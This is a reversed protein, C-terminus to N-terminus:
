VDIRKVAILDGLRAAVQEIIPWQQLKCVACYDATFFLLTSRGVFEQSPQITKILKSRYVQWALWLLTLGGLIVLTIVLRDLM